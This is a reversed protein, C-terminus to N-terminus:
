LGKEILQGCRKPINGISRLIAGQLHFPQLSTGDDFDAGHRWCLAATRLGHFQWFTQLEGRLVHDHQSCLTTVVPSFTRKKKHRVNPVWLSKAAYPLTHCGSVQGMRCRVLATAGTPAHGIM